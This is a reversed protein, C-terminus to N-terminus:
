SQTEHGSLCQPQGGSSGLWRGFPFLLHGSIGDSCQNCLKHHRVTKLGREKGKGEQEVVYRM